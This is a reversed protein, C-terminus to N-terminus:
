LHFGSPGLATRTTMIIFYADACHKARRVPKPLGQAHTQTHRAIPVRGLLGSPTSAAYVARWHASLSAEHARRRLKIYRKSLLRSHKAQSTDKLWEETEPRLSKEPKHQAKSYCFTKMM